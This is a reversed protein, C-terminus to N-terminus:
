INNISLSKNVKNFDRDFVVVNIYDGSDLDGFTEYNLIVEIPEQNKDLVNYGLDFCKDYTHLEDPKMIKELNTKLYLFHLSWSICIDPNLFLGDSSINIKISNQNISPNDMQNIFINGPKHLVLEVRKTYQQDTTVFQVEDNYYNIESGNLNFSEVKISSNGPVKHIIFADKETTGNKFLAGDVFIKYGSVIPNKNEDFAKITVNWTNSITQQLPKEYKFYFGTFIAGAIIMIMLVFVWSKM